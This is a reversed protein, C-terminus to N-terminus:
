EMLSIWMTFINSCIYVINGVAGAILVYQMPFLTKWLKNMIYRAIVFEKSFIVTSLSWLRKMSLTPKRLGCINRSYISLFTIKISKTGMCRRTNIRNWKVLNLSDNNQNFISFLSLLWSFTKKFFKKLSRNGSIPVLLYTVTPLQRNFNSVTKM